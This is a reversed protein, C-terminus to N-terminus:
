NEEKVLKIFAMIDLCRKEQCAYQEFCLCREFRAIIVNREYRRASRWVELYYDNIAEDLTDRPTSM